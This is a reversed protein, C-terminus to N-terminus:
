SSAMGPPTSHGALDQVFEILLLSVILFTRLVNAKTAVSNAVSPRAVCASSFVLVQVPQILSLLQAAL